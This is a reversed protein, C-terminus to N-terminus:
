PHINSAKERNGEYDQESVYNIDLDELADKVGEIRKQISVPSSMTLVAVNAKGDKEDKIKDHLYKGIIQGTEYSDWTVYSVIDEYDANNDFFVIPIGADTAKQLVPVLGDANAPDVAILDYEQAATASSNSFCALSRPTSTFM